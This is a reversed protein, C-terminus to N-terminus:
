EELTGIFLIFVFINLSLLYLISRSFNLLPFQVTLIIEIDFILFLILLLFFRVSFPTRSNRKGDFGCEFARRKERRGIFNNFNKLVLLVYIIGGLGLCFVAM